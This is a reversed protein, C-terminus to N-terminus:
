EDFNGGTRGLEYITCFKAKEIDQMQHKVSNKLVRIGLLLWSSYYM